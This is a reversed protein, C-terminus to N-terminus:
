KAIAESEGTGKSLALALLDDMVEWQMLLLCSQSLVEQSWTWVEGPTGM